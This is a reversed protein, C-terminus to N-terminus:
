IVLIKIKIIHVGANISLFTVICKRICERLVNNPVGSRRSM